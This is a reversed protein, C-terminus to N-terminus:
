LYICFLKTVENLSEVAEYEEKDIREMVSSTLSDDQQVRVWYSLSGDEEQKLQIDEVTFLDEFIANMRHDGCPLKEFEPPFRRM